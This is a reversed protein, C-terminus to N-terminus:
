LLCGFFWTSHHQSTLTEQWQGVNHHLSLSFLNYQHFSWNVCVCKEKVSKCTNYMRSRQSASIPRQIYSVKGKPRFIASHHALNSQQRVGRIWHLLKSRVSLTVTVFKDHLYFFVTANNAALQCTYNIQWQNWTLGDWRGCDICWQEM